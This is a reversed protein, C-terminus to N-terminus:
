NKQMDDSKYLADIDISTTAIIKDDIMLTSGSQAVGVKRPGNYKFQKVVLKAPGYESKKNYAMFPARQIGSLTIERAYTVSLDKSAIGTGTDSIYIQKLNARSQEGVSIAKDKIGSFYLSEGELTTKSIDLGDGSSNNVVLGKIKGSSFDIDIADSSVDEIVVETLNFTGNIINIADESQIRRITLKEITIDSNYITFAGTLFDLHSHPKKIDTIFANKIFSATNEGLVTIGGWGAGTKASLYVPQQKTGKIVLAGQVVLRAKSAFTLNAGSNISLDWGAPLILPEDIEWLGAPITINKQDDSIIFKPHQSRLHVVSNTRFPARQGTQYDPYLEFMVPLSMGKVIVSGRIQKVFSNDKPFKESIPITIKKIINKGPSYAPLRISSRQGAPDSLNQISGNEMLANLQKVVIPLPLVNKFYIHIQNDNFNFGGTVIRGSALIPAAKELASFKPVKIAKDHAKERRSNLIFRAREVLAEVELPTPFYEIQTPFMAQLVKYRSDDSRLQASFSPALVGPVIKKAILTYTDRFKESEFIRKLLSPKKSIFEADILPLRRNSRRTDPTSNWAVPEFKLTVPNLYLRLSSWNLGHYAGWIESLVLFAAWKERDFVDEANLRRLLFDRMLSQGTKVLAAMNPDKLLSKEFLPKFPAQEFHNSDDMIAPIRDQVYFAVDEAFRFIPGNRKGNRELFHKTPIEEVLMLGLDKGNRAYRVFFMKGALLDHKKLHKFFLIDTHQRLSVRPTQISFRSMGMLTNKNRTKMTLSFDPWEYHMLGDGKLRAKIPVSQGNSKISAKVWLGRDVGTSTQQEIVKKRLEDLKLLNDFKIHLNVQPIKSVSLISGIDAKMVVDYYITTVINKVWKLRHPYKVGVYASSMGVAIIIGVGGFGWILRRILKSRLLNFKSPQESIIM